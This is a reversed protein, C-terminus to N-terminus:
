KPRADLVELKVNEQAYEIIPVDVTVLRLGYRIATAVLVRDAPDRHDFELLASDVLTERDVQVVGVGPAKSAKRLWDRAQAYLELRGTKVKTAIEWFSIESIAVSQRAAAAEIEQWAEARLREREAFVLWIWAHTDLLLAASM